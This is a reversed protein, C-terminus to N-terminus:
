PQNTSKAAVRAVAMRRRNEDRGAPSRKWCHSCLPATRESRVQRGCVPCPPRHRNLLALLEDRPVLALLQAALALDHHDPM